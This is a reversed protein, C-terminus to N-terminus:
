PASPRARTAGSGGLRQVHHGHQGDDRRREHHAQAEDQQKATGPHDVLKQFVGEADRRRAPEIAPKAHPHRLGKGERGNGEHDHAAHHLAHRGAQFLGRLGQAGARLLGEHRDRQRQELGAQGIGEQDAEDFAHGVEAVGDHHAPLERHQGGFDEKGDHAGLVVLAAGGRQGPDERQKRERHEGDLAAQQALLVEGGHRALAVRADGHRQGGRTRRSTLLTASGQIAKV